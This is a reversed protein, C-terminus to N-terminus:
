VMAEYDRRKVHLCPGLDLASACAERSGAGADAHDQASAFPQCAAAGADGPHYPPAPKANLRAPM